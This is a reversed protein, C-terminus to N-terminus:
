FFYTKYTIFLLKFFYTKHQRFCLTLPGHQVSKVRNLSLKEDVLCGGEHILDTKASNYWTNATFYLFIHSTKTLIVSFGWLIPLDPAKLGGVIEFSGLIYQYIDVSIFCLSTVM